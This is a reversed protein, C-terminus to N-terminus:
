YKKQEYRSRGAIFRGIKYLSNETPGSIIVVGGRKLVKKFLRIIEDLDDIHELVDLAVIVDFRDKYNEGYLNDTSEFSVNRPFQIYKKIKSLPRYDTDFGVVQEASDSFLYSAVGSGCGFDLITTDDGINNKIYDHVVKLRKWFLNDIFPNKHAYAPFAAEKLSDNIENESM